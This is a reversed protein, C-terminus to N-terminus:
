ISTYNKYSLICPIYQHNNNHCIIIKDLQVEQVKEDNYLYWNNDVPSKSFCVYINKGEKDKTISVIANLEYIKLNGEIHFTLDIKDEIIFPINILNNDFDGRDLSFIFINSSSYIKSCNLIKSNGCNKCLIHAKKPNEYYKLCDNITIANNQKLKFTELIDLEFVNFTNLSYINNNCETCKSEKIEFWNLNNSIISNNNKLFNKIEYNIVEKKHYANPNLTKIDEKIQNLENHLTNLIFNILDNPNRKNQSKYVINLAGLITLLSDPKYIQRKKHEPFPYLHLFLRQFVYSLPYKKIDSYILDKTTPNLFFSAINRISGLLQLVANLYSTNGLNLLGTKPAKTYRSFSYKKPENSDIKNNNQQINEKQKIEKKITNIINNLEANNDAKNNNTDQSINNNLDNNNQNNNIIKNKISNNMNNNKNNNVNNNASNADNNNKISNNNNKNNNDNNIKNSNSKNKNIEKINNSKIENKNDNINKNNQNNINNFKENKSKFSLINKNDNINNNNSINQKKEKDYSKKKNNDNANNVNIINKAKESENNKNNQMKEKEKSINKKDNNNLNEKKIDIHEKNDTCKLSNNKNNENIFNNIEKNKNIQDNHKSSEAKIVITSIPDKNTNNKNQECEKKKDIKTIEDRAITQRSNNGTMNINDSFKINKSLDLNETTTEGRSIQSRNEEM